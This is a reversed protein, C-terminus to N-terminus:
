FNMSLQVRSGQVGMSFQFPGIPTKVEIPRLAIYATGVAVVGSIVTMALDRKSKDNLYIYDKNTEPFTDLMKKAEDRHTQYDGFKRVGYVSAAGTLILFPLFPRRKEARYKIQTQFDLIIKGSQIQAIDNMQVVILNGDVTRVAAADRSRKVVRGQIVVGDKKTISHQAMAQSVFFLGMLIFVFRKM